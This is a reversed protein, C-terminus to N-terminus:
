EIVIAKNGSILRVHCCDAGVEFEENVIVKDSSFGTFRITTSKNQYQIRYVDSFIPYFGDNKYAEFDEENTVLTINEGTKTDIVKFRDLPIDVGSANKVSVGIIEFIQTCAVDNCDAPTPEDDNSCSGGLLVFVILIWKLWM